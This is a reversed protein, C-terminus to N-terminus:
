AGHHKQRRYQKEGGAGRFWQSRCDGHHGCGAFREVHELAILRGTPLKGRILNLAARLLGVVLLNSGRDDPRKQAGTDTGRQAAASARRDAGADSRDPAGRDPGTRRLARM